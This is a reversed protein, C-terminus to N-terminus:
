AAATFRNVDIVTDAIAARVDDDHAAKERGGPRGRRRPQRRRALRDTRRAPSAASRIRLRPRHQRAATRRGLVDGAAAAVAAGTHQASAPSRGRASPRRGARGGRDGAARRRCRGDARTSRRTSVPQCLRAGARAAYSDSATGGPRRRGHPWRCEGPHQRRRLPLHRLDDEPDLEQGGGVPRRARRM